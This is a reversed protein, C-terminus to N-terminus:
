KIKYSRSPTVRMRNEVIFIFPLCWYILHIPLSLILGTISLGSTVISLLVKIILNITTMIVINLGVNNGCMVYTTLGGFMVSFVNILVFLPPHDRTITHLNLRALSAYVGIIFGLFIGAGQTFLVGLAIAKTDISQDSSPVEEEEEEVEEWEEDDELSQSSEEENRKSLAVIKDLQKDYAEERAEIKKIWEDHYRPCPHGDKRHYEDMFLRSTTSGSKFRPMGPPKPRLHLDCFHENCYPCLKVRTQKRCLHYHCEGEVEKPTYDQAKEPPYTFGCRNCIIIDERKKNKAACIPCRPM